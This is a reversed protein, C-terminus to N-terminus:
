TVVMVSSRKDDSALHTGFTTAADDWLSLTVIKSRIFRTTARTMYNDPLELNTNALTQLHDLNRLMFKEREITVQIDSIEAIITTPLFRITFSNEIIM